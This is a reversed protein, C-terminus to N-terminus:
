KEGGIQADVIKSNLFKDLKDRPIYVSRGLKVIPIQRKAVRARLGWESIGLYKAAERITLLKPLLDQYEM